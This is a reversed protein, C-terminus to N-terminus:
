LLWENYTVGNGILSSVNTVNENSESFYVLADERSVGHTLQHVWYDLGAQDPDRDLVNNYLKTVYTQDSVNSGYLTQFENSHLFGYAATQLSVGNDLQEIWYGLGDDDSPRDFAAKYLRYASGAHEWMDVDLAVNVDSFQLREVDVLKDLGDRNSENDLITKASIHEHSQGRLDSIVSDQIIYENHAGRYVATDIGDGGYFEDGISNNNGNADGYGTFVDDGALSQVKDNINDSVSATFIDNGSLLSQSYSFDSILRQWDAGSSYHDTFFVSGNKTVQIDTLTGQVDALSQGTISFNGELRVTLGDLSANIVHSNSGPSLIIQAMEASSGGEDYMNWIQYTQYGNEIVSM